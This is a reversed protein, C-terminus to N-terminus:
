GLVRGCFRSKGLPVPAESLMVGNNWWEVVGDSMRGELKEGRGELREGRIEGM